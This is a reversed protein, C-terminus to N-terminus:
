RWCVFEGNDQRPSWNGGLYNCGVESSFLIGTRTTIVGSIFASTLAFLVAFIIAAARWKPLEHVARVAAQAPLIITELERSVRNIQDVKEAILATSTSAGREAAKEVAFRDCATSAQQAAQPKLALNSVSEEIADLKDVIAQIPDDSM